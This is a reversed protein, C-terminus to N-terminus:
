QLNPFRLWAHYSRKIHCVAEESTVPNGRKWDQPTGSTHGQSFNLDYLCFGAIKCHMKVLFHNEYHRRYHTRLRMRSSTWPPEPTRVGGAAALVVQSIPTSWTLNPHHTYPTPALRRWLNLGLRLALVSYCPCCSGASGSAVSAQRKCAPSVEGRWLMHCSTQTM